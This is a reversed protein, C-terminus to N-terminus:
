RVLIYMGDFLYMTINVHKISLTTNRTFARHLVAFLVFIPCIRRIEMTFVKKKRYCMRCTSCRIKIHIKFQLQHRSSLNKLLHKISSQHKADGNTVKTSMPSLSFWPVPLCDWLRTSLSRVLPDKPNVCGYLGAGFWVKKM